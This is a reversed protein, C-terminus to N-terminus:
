LHGATTDPAADQHAIKEAVSRLQQPAHMSSAHHVVIERFLGFRSTSSFPSGANMSKWSAEKAVRRLTSNRMSPRSSM